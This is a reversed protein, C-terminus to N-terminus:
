KAQQKNQLQIAAHQMCLLRQLSSGCSNHLNVDNTVEFVVVATTAVSAEPDVLKLWACLWGGFISLLIQLGASCCPAACSDPCLVMSVLSVLM